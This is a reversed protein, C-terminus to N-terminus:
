QSSEEQDPFKVEDPLEQFKMLAQVKSDAQVLIKGAYDALFYAEQDLRVTIIKFKNEEKVIYVAM